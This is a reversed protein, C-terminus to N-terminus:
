WGLCFILGTYDLTRADRPIKVLAAPGAEEIKGARLVVVANPIDHTSHGFNSVDILTGGTLAVAPQAKDSQASVPSEAFSLLLGLTAIIATKMPANYREKAPQRPIATSHRAPRYYGRRASFEQIWTAFDRRSHIQDTLWTNGRVSVNSRSM